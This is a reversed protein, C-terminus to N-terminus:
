TSARLRAAGHVRHEQRRLRPERAHRARAREFLQRAPTPSAPGQLVCRWSGPWTTPTTSGPISRRARRLDAGPARRRRRVARPRPPLRDLTLCKANYISIWLPKWPATEGIMDLHSQVRPLVNEPKVRRTAPGRRRAVPLRHALRQRAPTHMLVTSGPNSPPDFWALREIPRQTQGARHRRDRLPRRVAHRRAAPGAARARHQPRRRLRGALRRAGHQRARRRRSTSGRRRRRAARMAPSGPRGACTSWIRRASLAADLLFQEIYYQQSTSWRRFRRPRRRQPMKFHLVETDRYYSRGGTWPLGKSLFRTPRRRATRPDGPQAALHLHRPQRQM